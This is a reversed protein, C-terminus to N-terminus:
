RVGRAWRLMELTYLCDAISRHEPGTSPLPCSINYKAETDMRVTRIDFLRYHLRSTVRPFHMKIFKDDFHISSGGMLVNGYDKVADYRGGCEEIWDAFDHDLETLDACVEGKKPAARSAEFLGNESHMRLVTPDAGAEPNELHRVRHFQAKLELTYFDVFLAGVELITNRVLSLGDTEIDVLIFPNM